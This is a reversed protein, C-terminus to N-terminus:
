PHHHTPLSLNPSSSLMRRYPPYLFLVCSDVGLVLRSLPLHNACVKAVGEVSGSVTLVREHVGPIVKSVGAKVGTQERLEAVNKGTGEMKVTTNVDIIETTAIGNATKAINRIRATAVNRTM